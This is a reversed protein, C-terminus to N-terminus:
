VIGTVEQEEVGINGYDTSVTFSCLLSGKRRSFVFDSVANVRGDRLLTNQIRTPLVSMVYDAPKGILDHTKLGYDASYIDYVGQEIRLRLLVAQRVAEIGTCKGNMCAIDFDARYTKDAYQKVGANRIDIGIQPIM